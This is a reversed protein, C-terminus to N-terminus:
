LVDLPKRELYSISIENLVVMGEGIYFFQTVGIIVNREFIIIPNLTM